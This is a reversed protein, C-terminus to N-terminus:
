RARKVLHGSASVTARWAPVVESGCWAPFLRSPTGRRIVEVGRWAPVVESLQLGM